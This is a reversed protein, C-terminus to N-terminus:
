QRPGRRDPSGHPGRGIGGRRRYRCVGPPDLTVPAPVTEGHPRYSCVGPPTPLWLGGPPALNDSPKRSLLLGENGTGASTRGRARARARLAISPAGQVFDRTHSARLGTTHTGTGIGGSYESLYFVRHPAGRQPTRGTRPFRARGSVPLRNPEPLRLGSVPERGPARLTFGRGPAAYPASGGTRHPAAYGREHGTGYPPGDTPITAPRLYPSPGATDTLTRSFVQQGSTVGNTIIRGIITIQPRLPLFCLACAM